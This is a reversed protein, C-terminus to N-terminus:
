HGPCAAEVAAGQAIWFSMLELQNLTLAAPNPPPGTPSPPVDTNPYPMERGPILNALRAREAVSLSTPCVNGADDCDVSYVGLANTSTGAGGDPPVAMLLKYIIWSHAPDGLVVGGDDLTTGSGSAPSTGAGSADATPVTADAVSTTADAATGADAVSTTADAATGGGDDAPPDADAAGAEDDAASSSGSSGGTGGQGPAPPSSLEIAGQAGPDIIPVDENFILTPAEPASLPGMNSGHAVQDIATSLIAQASQLELGEAPTSGGHCTSATCGDFIPRMDGCYDVTPPQVPAAASGITFSLVTPSSPSLYAGDIARLGTPDTPGSPSHITVQYSQSAQFPQDPLPTITVVRAVPDYAVTPTLPQPSNGVIEDLIFTQRVISLPLLLRDFSIEVRGGPPIPGHM